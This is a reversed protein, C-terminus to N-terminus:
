VNKRLHEGLLVKRSKESESNLLETELLFKIRYEATLSSIRASAQGEIDQM